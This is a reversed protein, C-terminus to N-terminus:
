AQRALGARAQSAPLVRVEPLPVVFETGAAVLAAERELFGQVFSYPLALLYRPRAARMSAEDRIPVDSGIMYKGLKFPNADAAAELERATLGCFQLITNGKTSAGYVWIPEGRARARDCLEALDTRTRDIRQMFARYTTADFLGARTEAALLRRYRATEPCRTCSRHCAFVRFSGGYVENLAVDFIRLGAREFIWKMQHAAYYGAHEHVINDYMNTRLMAPLYAMQMIAVGDSALCAAVDEVFRVPDGLHYFMAVSFILRAPKATAASYTDRSFFGRVHTYEPSEVLPTINQAADINVLSWGANAFFSLLTGDNGGIDLVVDGPRLDVVARGSAAVDQLIAKMSSNTASTYPYAEYMASLDFRHALQVLGCRSADGDRDCLVLELPLPALERRYSLDSPFISSLYQRGIDIVGVLARNGCARCAEVRPPEMVATM